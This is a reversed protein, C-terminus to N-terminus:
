VYARYRPEYMAGQIAALLDPPQPAMAVRSAYAVEAVAAAIRVSADRIRNLGPYIRGLALDEATVISSLAHAAATFMEDTVRTARSVLVGLGIGPFIFANNGQGPAFTTDGFTVPPFPSGSAFVCRGETWGYAEEAACESKSTPNSLAFIIPRRNLRAMAEVAERTFAGPQGSVGILATPKLAEIADALGTIPSHNRALPVKHPPLAKRSTVVLGKSDMFWCQLAAEAKSLGQSQMETLVLYGIGIAAEGAGYVLLRHDRLRTETTRAATLLGALTVWGTGQVDDNFCCVQHRYRELIRLANLTAFDEFQILV